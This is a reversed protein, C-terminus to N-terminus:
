HEPGRARRLNKRPLDPKEASPNPPLSNAGHRGGNGLTQDVTDKFSLADGRLLRQLEVPKGQFFESGKGIVAAFEGKGIGVSSFSVINDGVDDVPVDVVRVDAVDVALEAGKVPCLLLGIGVDDGVRLDILLEIFQGGGAADLDQHLSSVVGGEGDVPVGVQEGMDPLFVRMHVDM